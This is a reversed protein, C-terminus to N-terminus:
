YSSFSKASKIIGIILKSVVVSQANAQNFQDQTIFVLENAVQLQNQIEMLSGMSIRYFQVKEKSTNRSFGEAINSTVSIAARKLQSALGFKETEPFHECLKYILLVLKHGEKWANLDTFSIIKIRAGTNMRFVIYLISFGM